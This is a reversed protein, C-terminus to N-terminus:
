FCSVVVALLAVIFTVGKMKQSNFSVAGSADVSTDSSGSPADAARVNKEPKTPAPAEAPAATPPQGFLAMPLLVKDVQYVALQNDSYITNSVTTDVVGTTINVQNGSTTVNLPYEGDDSNGAQTHLPNSVTQFQSMTYLNPLIHFQLLQLQDQTNISNLTGAKLSSFANDTPAFITIGQNSNNLQSNIRDAVQTAKILKIFTTFQGAKELVQTINTPGAPAPAVATQAYITQIQFIVILFLLPLFHFLKAMTTFFSLVLLFSIVVIAVVFTVGKIKLSNLDVSSSADVSTDSSGSPADAARVNKEPKTPAPAEAPAATPPQGFLAMPLLVKDVQYVALQNDSYITNSVTTDVVGTTINVQNGSTTVNLPYEGDDSNGAQTHLPNSVTQFQSITYLNPLIHFQLLQLQDQTNISNLTGAKLSSFANDTPAFITIGQNSNNLQSNIRDAVQTAKILKIFTTFQGAKELVQTINTPGAPAPTVATQAHIKQIQFIMILFLLPLFHFLKAM